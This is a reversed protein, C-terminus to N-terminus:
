TQKISWLFDDRTGGYSRTWLTDGLTDMKVVWFDYLGHNGWVDGDISESTGGIIYNGDDTLDVSMAYDWYTGGLAREWELTGM